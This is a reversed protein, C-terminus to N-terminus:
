SRIPNFPSIVFFDFKWLLNRMTQLYKIYLEWTFHCKLIGLSLPILQLIKFFEHITMYWAFTYIIGNQGDTGVNKIEQCVWIKVMHLNGGRCVNCINREIHGQRSWEYGRRWGRGSWWIAACRCLIRGIDSFLNPPPLSFSYIKLSIKTHM